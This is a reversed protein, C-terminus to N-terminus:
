RGDFLPSRNERCVSGRCRLQAAARIMQLVISRTCSICYASRLCPRHHAFCTSAPSCGLAGRWRCPERLGADASGTGRRPARTVESRRWGVRFDARELLAWVPALLKNELMSTRLM